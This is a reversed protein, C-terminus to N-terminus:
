LLESWLKTVSTEYSGNGDADLEIRVQTSSLATVRLASGNEGTVVAQGSAPRPQSLVRVFPVPTAITVLKSGFASSSLSGAAATTSTTANLVVSVTYNELKRNYTTGGYTATTAFNTATLTSTQDSSSRANLTVAITGNGTSTAAASRASLNNFTLTVALTFPPVELNGSFATVTMNLVGNLTSGQYVCNTATLSVSDGANPLGNGNLDNESVTLTGGGACPEITTQVVGTALAPARGFRSSISVAQAQGFSVLVDSNSIEAGTALTAADAVFNTSSLSEQAVTVYNAANIVAKTSTVGGGSSGNNAAAAAPADGGGGGGCAVLMSSLVALTISNRM